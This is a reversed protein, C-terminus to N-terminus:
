RIGTLVEVAYDPQPARDQVSRCAAMHERVLQAPTYGVWQKLARTLHPQDFYGAAHVTDLISQGQRLLAAAHKAREVQRVHGQTLGTARQFRHRVTRDPMDLPSAARALAAGVLPEHVLLEQRVLRHIFTDANEYDPFQWAAGKLWFSQRAAGPLITEVDMVARAPLHPMFTGLKLRIWVIEAGETFTVVGSTTLPGVVIFQLGGQYRTACLHWQNEAPRIVVGGRVTRGYMVTDVYPSDSFRDKEDALMNM